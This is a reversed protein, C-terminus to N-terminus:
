DGDGTRVIQELFSRGDNKLRAVGEADFEILGLDQLMTLANSLRLGPYRLPETYNPPENAWIFGGEVPYFKFTNYHQYRLKELAIFEHQGIIYERYLWTLLDRVTWGSAIGRTLDDFFQAIPLRQRSAVVTWIADRQEHLPRFRLFLQCLIRLARTLWQALTDGPELEQIYLTYEDVGSELQCADHFLQSAEQWPYNLEVAACLTDLYASVSTAALGNPLRAAIDDIFAEFPVTDTPRAKLHELFVYWLLQLATTYTHRVLVMRWREYWGQLATHPRYPQGVDFQGLYLASRLAWDLPTDQSKAAMDLLLGLTLRRRVHPDDIGSRDFRFFAERLLTRELDSAALAEPCLCAVEGYERADTRSITELIGQEVLKRYYTTNRISDEFARALAEGRESLRYVLHQNEPEVIIEMASMATGYYQGFGGLLNGFYNQDLSIPDGSNWYSRVKYSNVGAGVMGGLLPTREYHHGFCSLLFAVEHRRFYSGRFDRLRRSSNPDFIFRHLVWSYFSYYRAHDTTSIIGYLLYQQETQAAGELGLQDEGGVNDYQFPTTWQPAVM